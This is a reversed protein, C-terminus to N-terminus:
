FNLACICFLVNLCCDAPKIITDTSLNSWDQSLSCGSCTTKLDGNIFHLTKKHNLKQDIDILFYQILFTDVWHHYRFYFHHWLHSFTNTSFSHFFYILFKIIIDGALARAALRVVEKNPSACMGALIQAYVYVFSMCDFLSIHLYLHWTTVLYMFINM